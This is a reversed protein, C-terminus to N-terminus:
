RLLRNSFSPTPTVLVAGTAVAPALPSVPWRWRTTQNAWKARAM